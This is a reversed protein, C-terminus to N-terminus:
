VYECVGKLGHISNCHVIYNGVANSPQILSMGHRERFTFWSFEMRRLPINGVITERCGRRQGYQLPAYNRWFGIGKENPIFITLDSAQVDDFIVVVSDLGITNTEENNM